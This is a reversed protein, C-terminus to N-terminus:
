ATVKEVRRGGTLREAVLSRGEKEMWKYVSLAYNVVESM